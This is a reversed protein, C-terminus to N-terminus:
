EAARPLWLTFTSGAGARSEVGLDGGQLRALERALYLSLGTGSISANAPTLIRGFRTFLKPLDAQAIGFGHDSVAIAVRESEDASISVQVGGGEPSYRVANDILAGVIFRLKDLDANAAAPDPGLEVSIPHLEDALQGAEAVAITALEDLGVSRLHLETHVEEFRAVELMLEVLRRLEDATAQLRALVASHQAPDGALSADSLMSINGILVAVPTRLEHSMLLLFQKKVGELFELRDRELQAAGAARRARSLEVATRVRAALELSSFPKVLYDDAGADLGGIASEPGARASLMVIPVTDTRPDSRLARLLGFGDLKPMMVDTLVLDPAQALCAELGAAGDAAVTVQWHPELVSRLYGAMDANDEVVVIRGSPAPGPDRASPAPGASLWQLSEQVYPEVATRRKPHPSPSARPALLPLRITFTTGSPGSAADISGGQLTVLERVLSLGIGAGEFARAAAGRVRHFREFVRPLEDEPIGPGSDAVQVQVQGGTTRVAVRISGEMTFKVANTLLNLVIKEWMEVDVAAARRLDPSDVILELGAREAADEFGAALERTLTGLDVRTLHPELGGAELQSFDLLTNVLRLLRLANRHVMELAVRAKPGLEGDGLVDELPALLLTLPARLEHSINNFFDTKARDLEAMAELRAREEEHRHGTGIATTVIRGALGFFALYDEDLPRLSNTGCVLVMGGSPGSGSEIPLMVATVPIRRSDWPPDPVITLGVLSVTAPLGTSLVRAFPWPGADRRRELGSGAILEPPGRRPAAYVLAFPVAARGDGETLASVASECAERVSEVGATRESVRALIGLRREALIRNTTESVACYVGGIRGSDDLLPSFAFTFYCEEPFGARELVLMQDISWTKEGTDLVGKFLPGILDWIEPFVERLPRGMAFPHKQAIIARYADNYVMVLQEGWCILMPFASAMVTSVLSRLSVPWGSQAGLSTSSWDRSLFARSAVDDGGGALILETGVGSKASM